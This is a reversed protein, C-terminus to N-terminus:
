KKSDGLWNPNEDMHHAIYTRMTEVAELQQFLHAQKRMFNCVGTIM